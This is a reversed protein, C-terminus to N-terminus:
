PALLAVSGRFARRGGEAEAETKVDGEERHTQGTRPLAGTM